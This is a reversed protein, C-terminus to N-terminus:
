KEEKYLKIVDEAKGWHLLELARIKGARKDTGTTQYGLSEPHSFIVVPSYTLFETSNRQTVRLKREYSNRGPEGFWGLKYDSIDPHKNFKEEMAEIFLERPAILTALVKRQCLSFFPPRSWTYMNWRSFNYAFTDLPPRFAYFHEDPYLTDDECLAIYPTTAIKAGMVPAKYANIISPEGTDVINHGFNLPKQSISILPIDGLAKLLNKRINEAFYENPKNATYYIATIDSM